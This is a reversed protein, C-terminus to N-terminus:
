NRSHKLTRAVLYPWKVCLPPRYITATVFHHVGGIEASVMSRDKQPNKCKKSSILFEYVIDSGRVSFLFWHMKWIHCFILALSDGTSQKRWSSPFAQLYCDQFIIYQTLFCLTDLHCSTFQKKIYYIINVFLCPMQRSLRVIYICCRHISWFINGTSLAQKIGAIVYHELGGYIQM